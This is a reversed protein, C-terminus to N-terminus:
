RKQGDRKPPQFSLEFLPRLHIYQYFENRAEPLGLALFRSWAQRKLSSLLEPDSNSIAPAFQQQFETTM